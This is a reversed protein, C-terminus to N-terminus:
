ENKANTKIDEILDSIKWTKGGSDKWTMKAVEAKKAQVKKAHSVILNVFYALAGALVACGSALAIITETEM